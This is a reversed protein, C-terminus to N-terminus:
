KPAQSPAIGATIRAHEDKEAHDGTSLYRAQEAHEEGDRSEGDEPYEEVEEAGAELRLALKRIAPGAILIPM